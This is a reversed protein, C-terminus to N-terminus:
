FHSFPTHTPLNPFLLLPIAASAAHGAKGTKTKSKRLPPHFVDIQPAKNRLSDASCFFSSVISDKNSKWRLREFSAEFIISDGHHKSPFVYLTEKTPFIRSKLKNEFSSVTNRHSRLLSEAAAPSSFFGIKGMCWCSSSSSFNAFFGGTEGERKKRAIKKSPPFNKRWIRTLSRASKKEEQGLM